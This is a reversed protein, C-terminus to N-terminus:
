AAHPTATKLQPSAERQPLVFYFNNGYATPEYGVVGGHIEIANKVFTLGHGTGVRHRSNSGRYGEDFIREREEAGIHRGTNFVNYKVGSTGPAFFDPIVERGYSVYKEPKGEPTLVEETYKLANSFLNAYVQALLGVDVVCVVEEDPIGRIQDDIYIGMQKFQDIFRELQPQIVDKKINCTKTLVTLRGQDFHSRRFLTEIFLTMNQYHKEINEFEETLGRNVEHLEEMVREICTEGCSEGASYKVIMREIDRNRSIKGRLQRLFLKNVMNPVIINHEIDAVLTRIFRLHEANRESVYRNHLNYGIRNAYKEFFLAAHATLEACPYVELFGLLGDSTRFPLQDMLLTNGRIAAVLTDRSSLYPHSAPTVDAPPLSGIDLAPESQSVLQLSESRPDILYLRAHLGFFGYPITVCLCYIDDIHEFEQALDFFTTLATREDETFAYEGYAFKKQEIRELVHEMSTM